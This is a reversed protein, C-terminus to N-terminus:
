GTTIPTVSSQVLSLMAASDSSSSTKPPTVTILKGKYVLPKGYPSGNTDLAQKSVMMDGKGTQSQLWPVNQYMDFTEIATVTINGVTRPGGLSLEDSTGNGPRYKLDTATVDGGDFTDFTGKWVNGDVGTVKVTVNYLDERQGFPANAM